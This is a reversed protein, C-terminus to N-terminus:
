RVTAPNPDSALLHFSIELKTHVQPSPPWPSVQLLAQLQVVRFRSNFHLFANELHRSLATDMFSTGQIPGEGCGLLDRFPPM